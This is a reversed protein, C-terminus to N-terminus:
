EGGKTIEQVAQFFQGFEPGFQEAKETYLTQVKKQLGESREEAVEIGQTQLATYQDELADEMAHKQQRVLTNSARVIAERTQPALTDFWRKGAVLLAPITRHAPLALTSFGSDKFGREMGIFPLYEVADAQGTRLSEELADLSITEAHAGMLNLLRVNHEYPQHQCDDESFPCILAITRGQFAEPTNLPQDKSLYARSSTELFGLGVLNLKDLDELFRKGLPGDLVQARHTNDRFLYPLELLSLKPAIRSVSELPLIGLEIDGFQLGEMLQQATGLQADPFIQITLQERLKDQFHKLSNLAPHGAALTVGLKAFNQQAYGTNLHTLLLAIIILVFLIRNQKM